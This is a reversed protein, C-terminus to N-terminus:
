KYKSRISFFDSILVWFNLNYIGDVFDFFYSLIPINRYSNKVISFANFFISIECFMKIIGTNAEQEQEFRFFIVHFLNCFFNLDCEFRYLDM